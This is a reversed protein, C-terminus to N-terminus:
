VLWLQELSTIGKKKQKAPVGVKNYKQQRVIIYTKGYARATPGNKGNQWKMSIQRPGLKESGGQL